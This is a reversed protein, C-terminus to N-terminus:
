KKQTFLWTKQFLAEPDYMTAQRQISFKRDRPDNGVGSNYLWNGYNSHVDFDILLAEFYAAGIRWDQEWSKAWFSAVNQRGRNSMWGTNQLELMNANVFMEETKGTHWLDFAKKSQKWQYKQPNIGDLQFIKSGYKMSFFKFYDRWLLEFFMWYTDENKVVEREFCQLEWYVQKASIAGIALWASFKSSYETGLLGNRTQKYQAIHHTDWLYSQLRKRAETEGGLFPFASHIPQTFAEFGFSQLSPIHSSKLNKIQNVPKPLPLIARIKLNKEINKRFDTFIKPLEGINKFPLDDPHILCQDYCGHFTVNSCFSQIKQMIQAEQSTWEFQHYVKSIQQERIFKPLVDEPKDMFIVLPIHLTQLSKELDLLSELIFKMRYKETKKFGMPHMEFDRPDFCYVGIVADSKQCALWLAENDHTRLNKQFWILNTQM